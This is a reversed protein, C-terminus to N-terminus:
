QKCKPLDSDDDDDDDDSVPPNYTASTASITLNSNVTTTSYNLVGPTYNTDASISCSITSGKIAYFSSTYNTGNYLVSITQNASQNITVLYTVIKKVTLATYTTSGHGIRLNPENGGGSTDTPIYVYRSDVKLVLNTDTGTENKDTYLKYTKITNGKKIKLVKTYESM